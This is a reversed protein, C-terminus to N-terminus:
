ETDAVVEPMSPRKSVTKRRVAENLFEDLDQLPVATVSGWHIDHQSKLITKRKITQRLFDNVDELPVTSGNQQLWKDQQMTKRRATQRLFDNLDTLPVEDAQIQGDPNQQQLITRRHITQRIYDRLDEVHVEADEQQHDEEQESTSEPSESQEAELTPATFSDASLVTLDVPISPRASSRLPAQGPEATHLSRSAFAASSKRSGTTEHLAELDVKAPMPQNSEAFSFPADENRNRSSSDDNQDDENVDDGEKSKAEAKELPRTAGHMSERIQGRQSRLEEEVAPSSSPSALNEQFAHNRPLSRFQAATVRDKLSPNRPLTRSQMEKFRGELAPSRPLPRPLSHKAEARPSNGPGDVHLGNNRHLLEGAKSRAVPLSKAYLNVQESRSAQVAGGGTAPKAPKAPLTRWLAPGGETETAALDIWLNDANHTKPQTARSSDAGQLFYDATLDVSVYGGSKFQSSPSTIDISRRASSSGADRLFDDATLDVSLTARSPSVHRSYDVSHRQSVLESWWDAEAATAGGASQDQSDWPMKASAEKVSQSHHGKSYSTLDASPVEDRVSREAGTAPVKERISGVAAEPPLTARVSPAADPM